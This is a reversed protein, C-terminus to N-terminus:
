SPPITSPTTVDDINLGSYIMHEKYNACENAMANLERLMHYYTVSHFLSALKRIKQFHHNLTAFNSPSNKVMAEILIRSDGIVLVESSM